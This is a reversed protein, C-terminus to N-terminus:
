LILFNIKLDKIDNINRILSFKQNEQNVIKMINKLIITTSINKDQYLKRIDKVEFIEEKFDTLDNKLVVKKENENNELEKKVEIDGMIGEMTIYISMYKKDEESLEQIKNVIKIKDDKYEKFNLDKKNEYKDTRSIESELDEIKTKGILYKNEVFSKNVYSNEMNNDQGKELLTDFPM